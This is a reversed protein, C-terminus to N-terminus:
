PHEHHGLNTQPSSYHGADTSCTTSLCGDVHVHNSIDRTEDSHFPGAIVPYIFHYIYAVVGERGAGDTSSMYIHNSDYGHNWLAWTHSWQGTLYAYGTGGSMGLILGLVASCVAARRSISVGLRRQVSLLDEKSKYSIHSPSERPL